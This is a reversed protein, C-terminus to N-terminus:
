SFEYSKTPLNPQKKKCKSHHIKTPNKNQVQDCNLSPSSVAVCHCLLWTPCSVCLSSVGPSLLWILRCLSHLKWLTLKFCKLISIKSILGVWAFTSNSIQHSSNLCLAFLSFQTTPQSINHYIEAEWQCNRARLCHQPGSLIQGTSLM